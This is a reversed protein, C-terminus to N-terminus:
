FEHTRTLDNQLRTISYIHYKRKFDNTQFAIHGTRLSNSGNYQRFIYSKRKIHNFVYSRRGRHKCQLEMAYKTYDDSNRRPGRGMERPSAWYFSSAPRSAYPMVKERENKPTCFLTKFQKGYVRDVPSFTVM